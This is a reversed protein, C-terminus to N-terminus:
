QNVRLFIPIATIPTNESVKVSKKYQWEEKHIIALAELHARHKQRKDKSLKTLIEFADKHDQAKWKIHATRFQSLTGKFQMITKGTATHGVSHDLLRFPDIIAM